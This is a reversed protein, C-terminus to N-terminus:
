KKCNREKCYKCNGKHTFNVYTTPHSTNILYECSDIVIVEFKRYKSINFVETSDISNLSEYEFEIDNNVCSLMIISLILIYLNRIKM